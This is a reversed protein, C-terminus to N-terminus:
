TIITIKHYRAWEKIDELQKPPFSGALVKRRGITILVKHNGYRAHFHPPNHDDFFMEVIIGKRNTIQPM